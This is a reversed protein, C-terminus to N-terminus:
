ANWGPLDYFSKKILHELPYTSIVKFISEATHPKEYPNVSIKAIQAYEESYVKKIGSVISEKDTSCNVVSEGAIRGKQREGINLTPIHFSPTEAIGSSSNGIVARCYKMVSLYRKVGLSKFAKYREPATKVFENVKSAIIDGGTDSNPMTFIVKM